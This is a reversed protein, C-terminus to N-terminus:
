IPLHHSILDAPLELSDKLERLGTQAPSEGTRPPTTCQKGPSVSTTGTGFLMPWSSYEHRVGAIEYSGSKPLTAPEPSQPCYVSPNGKYGIGSVESFSRFWKVM